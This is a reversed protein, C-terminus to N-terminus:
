CWKMEKLYEINYKVLTIDEFLVSESVEPDKM